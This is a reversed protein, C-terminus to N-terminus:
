VRRDYIGGIIRKASRIVAEEIAFIYEKISFTLSRRHRMVDNILSNRDYGGAELYSSPIHHIYSLLRQRRYRTWIIRKWKDPSLVVRDYKRAGLSDGHGKLDIKFSADILGPIFDIELYRCIRQLEQVPHEVLREYAVICAEKEHHKLFEGIRAPGINFDFDLHDLRRMQNDRFAEISSSFVSIPNRLLVVFRADPFIKILDELIFYYRPTKDLFYSEGNLAYGNYIGRAFEAILNNLYKDGLDGALRNLANAAQIHGYNAFVGQKKRLHMLPLLFWPEATSAIAPHSM